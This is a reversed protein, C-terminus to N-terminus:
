EDTIRWSYPRGQGGGTLVGHQELVALAATIYGNSRLDPLARQINERTPPTHPYLRIYIKSATAELQDRRIAVNGEIM